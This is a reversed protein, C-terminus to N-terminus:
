GISTSGHAESFRSMRLFVAPAGLAYGTVSGCRNFPRRIRLSLLGSVFMLEKMVTDSRLTCTHSLRTVINGAKRGSNVSLCSKAHHGFEALVDLRCM